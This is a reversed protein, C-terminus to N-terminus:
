HDDARQSKPTPWEMPELWHRVHGLARFAQLRLRCQFRVGGLFLRLLEDDRRLIDKQLHDKAYIHRLRAITRSLLIQGACRKVQSGIHQRAELDGRLIVRVQKLSIDRRQTAQLLSITFQARVERPASRLVTRDKRKKATQVFLPHVGERAIVYLLSEEDLSNGSYRIDVNVTVAPHQLADPEELCRRLPDGSPKFSGAPVKRIDSSGELLLLNGHVQRVQRHHFASVIRVRPRPGMSYSHPLEDCRSSPRDAQLHVIPHVLPTVRLLGRPRSRFM